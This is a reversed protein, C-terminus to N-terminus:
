APKCQWTEPPDGPASMTSDTFRQPPRRYFGLSNYTETGQEVCVAANPGSVSQDGIHLDPVDAGTAGRNFTWKAIDAATLKPHQNSIVDMAIWGTFSAADRPPAMAALVDCSWTGGPMALAVDAGPSAFGTGPTVDVNTQVAGKFTLQLRIPVYVTIDSYTPYRSHGCLALAKTYPPTTSWDDPPYKSWDFPPTVGVATPRGLWIRTTVVGNSRDIFQGAYRM